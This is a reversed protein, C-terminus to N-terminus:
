VADKMTGYRSYYKMISSSTKATKLQGLPINRRINWVQDLDLSNMEKKGQLKHTQIMALNRSKKVPGNYLFMKESREM